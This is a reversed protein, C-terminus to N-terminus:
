ACAAVRVLDVLPDVCVSLSSTLSDFSIRLCKTFNAFSLSFTDTSSISIMAMWSRGYRLSPVVGTMTWNIDTSLFVSRIRLLFFRFPLLTKRLSWSVLVLLSSNASARRRLFSPFSYPVHVMFQLMNTFFVSCSLFTSM